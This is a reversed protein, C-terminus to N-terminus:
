TGTGCCTRVFEEESFVTQMNDRAWTNAQCIIQPPLPSVPVFSRDMGHFINFHIKKKTPKLSYIQIRLFYIMCLFVQLCAEPSQSKGSYQVPSVPSQGGPPFGNEELSEGDGAM